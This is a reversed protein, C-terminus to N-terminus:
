DTIVLKYNFDAGATDKAKVRVDYVEGHVPTINFVHENNNTQESYTSNIIVGQDDLLEIYIEDGIYFPQQCNDPSNCLYISLLGSTNNTTFRYYDATDSVDNLAGLFLFGTRYNLEFNYAENSSDNPEEETISTSVWEQDTNEYAGLDVQGNIIRANDILDLEPIGPAFNDGKDILVSGTPLYPFLPDIYGPYLNDFNDEGIAFEIKLM